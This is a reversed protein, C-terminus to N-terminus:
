PKAEGATAASPGGEGIAADYQAHHRAACPHKDPNFYGEGNYGCIYCPPDLMAGHALMWNQHADLKKRLEENERQLALIASAAEKWVTQEFGYHKGSQVAADLNRLREVLEAYNTATM